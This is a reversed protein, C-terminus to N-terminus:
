RLKQWPDGHKQIYPRVGIFNYDLDLGDEFPTLGSVSEISVPMSITGTEANTMSYPAIIGGGQINADAFFHVLGKASPNQTEADIDGTSIQKPFQRALEQAIKNAFEFATQKTNPPLLCVADLGHLGDPLDGTKIFVDIGAAKLHKTLKIAAERIRSRRVTKLGAIQWCVWQNTKDHEIAMTEVSFGYCGFEVLLLLEKESRCVLKDTPHLNLIPYLSEPLQNAYHAVISDQNPGKPHYAVSIYRGQLYPLINSAISQYYGVIDSHRIPADKNFDSM